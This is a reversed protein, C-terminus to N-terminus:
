ADQAFLRTLNKVTVKKDSSIIFTTVREIIAKRLSIPKLLWMEGYTKKVYDTGNHELEEIIKDNV